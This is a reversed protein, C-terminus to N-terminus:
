TSSSSTASRKPATCRAPSWASSCSTIATSCVRRTSSTRATSRRQRHRRDVDQRAADARSRRHRPVGAAPRGPGARQRRRAPPEAAAQDRLHGAGVSGEAAGHGVDPQLRHDPFSSFDLRHTQIQATPPLQEARALGRCRGAAADRAHRRELQLVPQNRGLRPQDGVARGRPRARHPGGGRAAAHDSVEMQEIPMVGNDVGIIIRPFNTTPFVAVPLTLAEYVGVVTLMCILFIISKSHRAFWYHDAREDTPQSM